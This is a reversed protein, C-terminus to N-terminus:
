LPNRYVYTYSDTGIYVHYIFGRQSTLAQDHHTCGPEKQGTVRLVAYIRLWWVPTQQRGVMRRGEWGTVIVVALFTRRFSILVAVRPSSGDSHADSFPRLQM